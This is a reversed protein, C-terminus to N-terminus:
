TPETLRDLTAASPQTEADFPLPYVFSALADAQVMEFMHAFIARESEPLLALRLVDGVFPLVMGLQEPSLIWTVESEGAKTRMSQHLYRGDVSWVTLRKESLPSNINVIVSNMASVGCGRV